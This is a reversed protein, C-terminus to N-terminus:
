RPFATIVERTGRNMVIFVNQLPPHNKSKGARGGLYGIRRNMPITYAVRGSEVKPRIGKTQTLEWAEDLLMFIAKADGDFVGHSGIRDPNDKAHLMVHELRTLGKPDRGKFVLGGPSTWTDKGTPKLKFPKPKPASSLEKIQDPSTLTIQPKGRHLKLTGRIEVLKDRFLNAPGGEPFGAVFESPCMVSFDSGSFNLFHHASGGSVKNADAKGYVVVDQGELAALKGSESVHLRSEAVSNEKGCGPLLFTGFLVFVTFLCRM